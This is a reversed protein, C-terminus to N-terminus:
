AVAEAMKAALLAYQAARHKRIMWYVFAASVAVLLLLAACTALIAMVEPLLPAFILVGVAVATAAAGSVAVVIIIKELTGYSDFLFKEIHGNTIQTDQWSRLFETM